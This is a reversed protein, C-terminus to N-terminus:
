IFAANLSWQLTLVKPWFLVTPQKLVLWSDTSVWSHLWRTVETNNYPGSTQPWSFRLHNFIKMIFWPLIPQRIKHLAPHQIKLCTLSIPTTIFDIAHFLVSSQGTAYSILLKTLMWLALTNLECSNPPVHSDWSGGHFVTLNLLAMLGFRWKIGLCSSKLVHINKKSAWHSCKIFVSCEQQNLIIRDLVWMIYKGIFWFIVWHGYPQLNAQMSCIEAISLSCTLVQCSANQLM